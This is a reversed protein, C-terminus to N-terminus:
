ALVGKPKQSFRNRFWQPSYLAAPAPTARATAPRLGGMLLYRLADCWHDDSESDLDEPNNEDQVMLPLTRIGYRCRPHISLWPRPPHDTHTCPALAEHLRQWGNVRDNSPYILPVGYRTFTTGIAEGVAGSSTGWPKISPDAFTPVPTKLQWHRHKAIIAEAVEKVTQRQFKLEDFIHVHGDPFAAGWVCVGPSATGWDLGCAVRLDRARLM